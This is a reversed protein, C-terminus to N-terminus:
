THKLIETAVKSAKEKETEKEFAFESVRVLWKWKISVRDPKANWQKVERHTNQYQKEIFINHVESRQFVLFRNKSTITEKSGNKKKMAGHNLIESVSMFFDTEKKWDQWKCIEIWSNWM